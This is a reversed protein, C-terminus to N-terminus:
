KGREAAIEDVLRCAQKKLRAGDEYLECARAYAAQAGGAAKAAARKDSDHLSRAREFFWSAAQMCARPDGNDCSKANSAVAAPASEKDALTAIPDTPTSTDIKNDGCGAAAAALVIALQLRRRLEM